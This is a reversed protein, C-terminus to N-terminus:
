SLRYDLFMVVAPLGKNTSLRASAGTADDLFVSMEMIAVRPAEVLHSDSCTALVERASEGLDVRGRRSLAGVKAASVARSFHFGQAQIAADTEKLLANQEKTEVGQAIVAIGFDHRLAPDRMACPARTSPTSPAERINSRAIKM